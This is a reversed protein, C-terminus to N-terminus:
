ARCNEERSKEERREEWRYKRSHLPSGRQTFRKGSESRSKWPFKPVRHHEVLSALPFREDGEGRQERM